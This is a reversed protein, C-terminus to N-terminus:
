IKLSNNERNHGGFPRYKVKNKCNFNEWVRAIDTSNM